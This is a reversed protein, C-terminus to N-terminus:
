RQDVAAVPQSFEVVVSYAPLDGMSEDSRRTQAQKQRRRAEIQSRSGSRIGSVELRARFDLPENGLYYDFGTGIRAQEVAVLGTLAQVLLIAIGCAGKETAEAHRHKQDHTLGNEQYAM